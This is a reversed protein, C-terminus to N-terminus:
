CCTRTCASGGSERRSVMSVLNPYSRIMEGTSGADVAVPHGADELLHDQNAALVGKVVRGPFAIAFLLHGVVQRPM